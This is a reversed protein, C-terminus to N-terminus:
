GTWMKLPPAVELKSPIKKISEKSEDVSLALLLANRMNAVVTVVPPPTSKELRNRLSRLIKAYKQRYKAAFKGM